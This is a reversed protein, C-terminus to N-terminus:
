YWINIPINLLVCFPLLLFPKPLELIGNPKQLPNWGCWYVFFVINDIGSILILISYLPLFTSLSLADRRRLQIFLRYNTLPIYNIGYVCVYTTCPTHVRIHVFQSCARTQCIRTCTPCDITMLSPKHLKRDNRTTGTMRDTQGETLRDTEWDTM